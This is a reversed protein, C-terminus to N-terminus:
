PKATSSLFARVPNRCAKSPCCGNCKINCRSECHGSHPWSDASWRLWRSKSHVDICDSLSVHSDCRFFSKSRLLEISEVNNLIRVSDVFGTESRVHVVSTILSMAKPPCEAWELFPPKTTERSSLFRSRTLSMKDCRVASKRRVTYILSDFDCDRSNGPDFCTASRGVPGDQLHTSNSKTHPLNDISTQEHDNHLRAREIYFSDKGSVKQLM